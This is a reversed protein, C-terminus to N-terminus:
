TRRRTCLSASLATSKLQEPDTDKQVDDIERHTFRSPRQNHQLGLRLLLLKRTWSQCLVKAVYPVSRMSGYGLLSAIRTLYM